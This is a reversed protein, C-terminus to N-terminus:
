DFLDLDDNGANEVDEADGDSQLPDVASACRKEAVGSAVLAEDEEEAEFQCIDEYISEFDDNDESLRVGLSDLFTEDSLLRMNM